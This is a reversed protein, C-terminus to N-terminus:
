ETSIRTAVQDYRTGDNQLVLIRVPLYSRGAALWIEALEDSTRRVLKLTDLEGAPTKIRERGNVAYVHHSQGRGDMVHFTVEGGPHPPAFAFDFLFALRDQARAPLPEDRPEGRYQMTVTKGQWDFKARATSRGTREDTFELPKLGEASVLGRSTRTASGRLALIGRGKWSETLQYIRGNHQMRHVVDAVRTGNRAIEYAIEIRAPPAADAAAAAASILLWCWSRM